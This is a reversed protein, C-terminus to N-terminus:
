SLRKILFYIYLGYFNKAVLDLLNYSINKNKNSLMAAFGYLGWVIVLFIYLRDNIINNKTYTHIILFTQYFFYFGISIGLYMNLINLEVLLGCVLMFFNNVFIKYIKMKNLHIFKKVDLIEGRDKVNNYEMYVITTFLMTPTTVFWDIYRLSGMKSVDTNYSAIYLYFTFEIIQVINEIALIEKLVVDSGKLNEFLGEWTIVTSIIQIIISFYVTNKVTLTNM